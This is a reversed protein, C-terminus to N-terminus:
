TTPQGEPKVCVCVCVRICMHVYMHVYLITSVISRTKLHLLQLFSLTSISNATGQERVLSTKMRVKFSRLKLVMHKGAFM